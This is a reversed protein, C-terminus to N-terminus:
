NYIISLMSKKEEQLLNEKIKFTKFEFKGVGHRTPPTASTGGGGGGEGGGGGGGCRGGWGVEELPGAEITNTIDRM